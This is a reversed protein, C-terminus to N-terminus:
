PPTSRHRRREWSDTLGRRMGAAHEQHFQQMQPFGALPHQGPQYRPQGAWLPAGATGWSTGTGTADPGIAGSGSVPPAINGQLPLQVAEAPGAPAANSYAGVSTPHVDYPGAQSQLAWGGGGHGATLPTGYAGAASLHDVPGRGASTPPQDAPAGSDAPAHANIPEAPRTTNDRPPPSPPNNNDHRSVTAPSINMRRRGAFAAYGEHRERAHRSEGFSDGERPGAVRPQSLTGFGEGRRGDRERNTVERDRSTAYGRDRALEAEDEYLRRRSM